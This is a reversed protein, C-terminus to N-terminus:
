LRADVASAPCPRCTTLSVSAYISQVQCWMMESTLTCDCCSVEKVWQMSSEPQGALLDDNVLEDRLLEFM